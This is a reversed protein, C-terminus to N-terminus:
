EAALFLHGTIFCFEFVRKAESSWCYMEFLIIYSMYWVAVYLNFFFPGLLANLTTFYLKDLPMLM